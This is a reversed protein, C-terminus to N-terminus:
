SRVAESFIQFMKEGYQDWGGISKVRRLAAESMRFRLEANDALKQLRDAIADVDRIPVIFGESGDTFLDQAGTNHSAIVPCGCAMAQAQVLALGEEVSPLVMVDSASMIERLRHQQVHGLVSIQDQGRVRKLTSDLGSSVGGVMTLHKHKCQLKQFADLLYGIGKRVTVSGVFLVNFRNESRQVCPFFTNLDV